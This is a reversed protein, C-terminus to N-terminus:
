MADAGSDSDRVVGPARGQRRELAYARAKQLSQEAVGISQVAVGIRSSNMMTFMAKLGGHPEGVLWGVSGEFTLAATASARIGMQHELSTCFVRNDSHEVLAQGDDGPLKKPVVFLSIGRTGAPAGPLRALV